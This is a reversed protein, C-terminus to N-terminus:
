GGDHVCTEVEEVGTWPTHCVPNDSALLCPNEMAPSNTTKKKM